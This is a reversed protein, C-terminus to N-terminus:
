RFQCQPPLTTIGACCLLPVASAKCGGGDGGSGCKNGNGDDAGIKRDADSNPNSSVVIHTRVAAQQGLWLQDNSTM